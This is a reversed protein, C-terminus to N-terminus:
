KDNAYLESTPKLGKMLLFGTSVLKLKERIRTADKLEPDFFIVGTAVPIKGGTAQGSGYLDGLHDTVIPDM